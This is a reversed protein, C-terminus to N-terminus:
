SSVPEVRGANQRQIERRFHNADGALARRLKEFISKWIASTIDDAM